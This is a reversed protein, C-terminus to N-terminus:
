DGAPGLVGNVEATIEDLEARLVEYRDFADRGVKQDVGSTMRALYNIHDRLGPASYRIPATILKNAVAQVQERLRAERGTAGEM